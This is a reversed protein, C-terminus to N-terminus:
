AGIGQRIAEKGPLLPPGQLPDADVPGQTLERGPDRRVSIPSRDSEDVQSMGEGSVANRLPAPLLLRDGMAQQQECAVEPM